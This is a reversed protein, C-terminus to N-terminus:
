HAVILRTSGTVNAGQLSITYIGNALDSTNIEMGGMGAGLQNKTVTKVVQGLANVVNVTVGQNSPLEFEIVVSNSAPNPYTLIATTTFKVDTIDAAVDWMKRENVNLVNRASAIADFKAVFGIVYMDMPKNRGAIGSGIPYHQATSTLTISTQAPLVYKYNMSVKQGPAYYPAPLSGATGWATGPFDIVVNKHYYGGMPSKFGYYPHNPNNTYVTSIAQDYNPNGSGNNGQPGRIFSEKVMAGIRLNGSYYDSFEAEVDFSIERTGGNYSVNNINVKVPTYETLVTGITNLWVSRNLGVTTQGSHIKRDIFGSPYGTSYAANVADSETNTMADANHHVAIIVDKGYTTEINGMYTHADPCHICWAGTAEEFLVKKAASTGNIVVYQSNITDNENNGDAGVNVNSVWIKVKRFVGSAPENINVNHSYSYLGGNAGINIGTINRVKPAGGDISYNLDFSTVANSGYNGLQGAVTYNTSKSLANPLTTSLMILDNAPQTGYFFKYVILDAAATSAAVPQAFQSGGTLQYGVTGDSNETGVTGTNTASGYSSFFVDFAGKGGEYLVIGFCLVDANAAIAKGKPSCGFWQIVFRRNPASGYTTTTIKTAFSPNPAAKFEWDNWFAYICNNPLGTAPIDSNASVSTSSAVDFTIYGNDSAKFQTYSNGYFSFTFPITQTSTLIDNNTKDMIGTLAILPSLEYGEVGKSKISYYNQASIGLITGFLMMSLITKKM